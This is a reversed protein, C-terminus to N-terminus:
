QEKKHEKAMTVRENIVSREFLIKGDERYKILKYSPVIGAQVFFKAIARGSKDYCSIDEYLRKEKAAALEALATDDSVRKCIAEADENVDAPLEQNRPRRKLDHFCYKM